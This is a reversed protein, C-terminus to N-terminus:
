IKNNVHVVGGNTHYVSRYLFTNVIEWCKLVNLCNLSAGLQPHFRGGWKRVAYQKWNLKRVAYSRIKAKRVAYRKVVFSCKKSKWEFLSSVFVTNPMCLCVWEQLRKNTTNAQYNELNRNGWNTDLRCNISFHGTLARAFRVRM